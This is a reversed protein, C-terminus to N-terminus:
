NDKRADSKAPDQTKQVCLTNNLHAFSCKKVNIYLVLFVHQNSKEGMKAMLWIYCKWTIGKTKFNNKRADSRTGEAHVTCIHMTCHQHVSMGWIQRNQYLLLLLLLVGFLACFRINHIKCVSLITHGTCIHMTCCQSVSGCFCVM